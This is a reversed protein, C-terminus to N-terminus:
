KKAAAEDMAAEFIVDLSSDAIATSRVDPVVGGLTALTKREASLYTYKSVRVASGDELPIVVQNHGNGSTREGVITAAGFSQMVLAFMEAENETGKNVMIVLPVGLQNSDSSYM